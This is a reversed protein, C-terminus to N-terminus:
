PRGGNRVLPTGREAAATAGNTVEGTLKPYTLTRQDSITAVALPKLLAHKLISRILAM